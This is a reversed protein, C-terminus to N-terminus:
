ASLLAVVDNANMARAVDIARLGGADRANPSAGHAVLWSVMEVRNFAPARDLSLGYAEAPRDARVRGARERARRVGGLVPAAEDGPTPDRAPSGPSRHRPRTGHVAGMKRAGVGVRPGSRKPASVVRPCM